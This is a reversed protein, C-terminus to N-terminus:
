KGNCDTTGTYKTDDDGVVEKIYDYLFCFEQHALVLLREAEIHANAFDAFGEIGNARGKVIDGTCKDIDKILSSIDDLIKKKEMKIRRKNLIPFAM